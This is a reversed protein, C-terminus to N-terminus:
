IGGESTIPSSRGGCGGRGSRRGQIHAYCNRTNRFVGKYYIVICFPMFPGHKDRLFTSQLKIVFAICSAPLLHPVVSFIATVYGTQLTHPHRPSPTVSTLVLATVASNKKIPNIARNIIKFRRNLVCSVHRVHAHPVFYTLLRTFKYLAKSIPM